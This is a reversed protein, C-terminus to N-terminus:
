LATGGVICPTHPSEALHRPVVDEARIAQFRKVFERLAGEPVSPVWGYARSQLGDPGRGELLVNTQYVLRGDRVLALSSIVTAVDAGSPPGFALESLGAALQARDKLVLCSGPLVGKLEEYSGRELFVYAVWDGEEFHFEEFPEMTVVYSYPAEPKARSQCGTVGTSLALTLAARVSPVRKM